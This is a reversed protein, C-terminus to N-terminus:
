FIGNKCAESFKNRDKEKKAVSRISYQIFKNPEFFNDIKMFIYKKDTKGQLFPLTSKIHSDIRQINSQLRSKSRSLVHQSNLTHSSHVEDFNGNQYM